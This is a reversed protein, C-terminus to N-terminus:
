PTAIVPIKVNCTSRDDRNLLSYKQVVYAKCLCAAIYSKSRSKRGYMNKKKRLTYLLILRYMRATQDKEESEAAKDNVETLSVGCM